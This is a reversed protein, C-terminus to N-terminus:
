YLYAFLESRSGLTALGTLISSMAISSPFTTTSAVHGFMKASNSFDATAYYADAITTYSLQPTTTTASANWLVGIFYVGASANYTSTFPIKILGVSSAWVNTTNASIAVQTLTGSSYSYLAVGNFGNGTYSGQTTLYISIGTLSQASPLFVASYAADGSSISGKDLAVYPSFTSAKLSSGLAQMIPITQFDWQGNLYGLTVADGSATPTPFSSSQFM